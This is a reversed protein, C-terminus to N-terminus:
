SAKGLFRLMGSRSQFQTAHGVEGEGNLVLITPISTVGYKTAVDSNEPADVDILVPIFSENVRARVDKDPWVDHKMVQCPPCWSATFDVLVPKATQRSEVLAAALDSRWGIGDPAASSGSVRYWAGKFM